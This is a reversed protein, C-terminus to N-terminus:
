KDRNAQRQHYIKDAERDAELLRESIAVEPYRRSFEERRQSPYREQYGAPPEFLSPPPERLTVQTVEKISAAYLDATTKGLSLVQKLPFCNLAPALWKEIRLVRTPRIRDEVTRVVEYGLLVSRAQPDDTTCTDGKRYLEVHQSSIPVTSVSETLGDVAIEERKGLDIITRMEAVGRNGPKPLNQSLVTSGDSRVGIISTGRIKLEGSRNYSSESETVVLAVRAQARITERSVTPSGLFTAIALMISVVLRQIRM